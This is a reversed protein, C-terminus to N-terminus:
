ILGVRLETVLSVNFTATGLRQLMDPLPPEAPLPGDDLFDRWANWIHSDLRLAHRRDDEPLDIQDCTANFVALQVRALQDAPDWALSRLM